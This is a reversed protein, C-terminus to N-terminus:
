EIVPSHVMKMIYVWMKKAEKFALTKARGLFLVRGVRVSVAKSEFFSIQKYLFFRSM